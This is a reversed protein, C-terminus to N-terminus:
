VNTSEQEIFIRVYELEDNLLKSVDDRFAFFRLPDSELVDFTLKVVKGRAVMRGHEEFKALIDGGGVGFIVILFTHAAVSIM